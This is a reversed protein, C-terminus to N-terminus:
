FARVARVYSPSSKINGYQKGLDFAQNWTTNVDVESSSWYYHPGFGGIEDQDVPERPCAPASATTENM